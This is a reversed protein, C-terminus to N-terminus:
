SAMVNKKVLDGLFCSSSVPSGFDVSSSDFSLTFTVSILLLSFIALSVLWPLVRTRFLWNIFVVTVSWGLGLWYLLFLICLFLNLSCLRNFCLILACANSLARYWCCFLFYDFVLSFPSDFAFSLFCAPSSLIQCMQSFMSSSWLFSSLSSLELGLVLGQRGGDGEKM